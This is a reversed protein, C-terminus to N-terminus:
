KGNTVEILRNNVWFGYGYEDFYVFWEEGQRGEMPGLEDIILCSEGAEIMIAEGTSMDDDDTAFLGFGNSETIAFQGITKASKM